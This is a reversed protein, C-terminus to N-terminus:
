IEIAERRIKKYFLLNSTEMKKITTPVVSIISNFKLDLCSVVPAIKSIEDFIQISEDNLVLLFDVDSEAHFDGRAYSGYLLIKAVREGYLRKLETRVEKEIAKLNVM